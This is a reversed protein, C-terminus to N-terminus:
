KISTFVWYYLHIFAICAHIFFIVTYVCFHVLIVILTVAVYPCMQNRVIWLKDPPGRSDRWPGAPKGNM